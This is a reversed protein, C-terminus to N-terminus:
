TLIAIHSSFLNIVFHGGVVHGSAFMVLVGVAHDDVHFLVKGFRLEEGKNTM